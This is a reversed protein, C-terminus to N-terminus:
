YFLLFKHMKFFLLNSKASWPDLSTFKRLSFSSNWLYFSTWFRLNKHLAQSHTQFFLMDVINYYTWTIYTMNIWSILGNLFGLEIIWSLAETHNCQNDRSRVDSKSTNKQRQKRTEQHNQLTSHHNEFQAQDTEVKNRPYCIIKLNPRNQFRTNSTQMDKKFTMWSNNQKLYPIGHYNIRSQLGIIIRINCDHNLGNLPINRYAKKM